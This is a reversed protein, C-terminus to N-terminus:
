ETEETTPLAVSDPSLLPRDVQGDAYEHYESLRDKEKLAALRMLETEKGVSLRNEEKMLDKIIDVFGLKANEIRKLRQDRTAKLLKMLDGHKEQLKVFEDTKAKQAARAATLQDTIQVVLQKDHDPMHEADTYRAFIEDQMKELRGSEVLAKQKEALNRNMLIQTKILLIVQTEESAVFDDKLQAMWVGYQEEFYCLEDADFQKQLENWESSERLTKRIVVVSAAAETPNKLGTAGAVLEKIADPTRDVKKAIEEVSMTGINSLIFNRDETSIRGKKPM